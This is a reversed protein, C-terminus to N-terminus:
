HVVVYGSILEIKELKDAGTLYATVLMGGGSPPWFRIETPKGDSRGVVGAMHPLPLQALERRCSAADVRQPCAIEFPLRRDGKALQIAEIIRRASVVAGAEDAAQMWGTVPRCPEADGEASGSIPFQRFSVVPAQVVASPDKGWSYGVQHVNRTCVGPESHQPNELGTFGFFPWPATVRRGNADTIKAAIEDPFVSDAIARSQGHAALAAAEELSLPKAVPDVLVLAAILEFM